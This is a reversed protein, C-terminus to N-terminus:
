ATCCQARMTFMSRLQAKALIMDSFHLTDVFRNAGSAYRTM